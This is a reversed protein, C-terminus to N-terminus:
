CSNDGSLVVPVNGSLEINSRGFNIEKAYISNNLKQTKNDDIFEGKAIRKTSSGIQWSVNNDGIFRVDSYVGTGPVLM